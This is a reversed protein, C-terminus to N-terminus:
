VLDVFHEVVRNGPEWGLFEDLNSVWRLYRLRLPRPCELEASSTTGRKGTATSNSRRSFFDM